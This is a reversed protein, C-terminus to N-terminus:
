LLIEKVSNLQPEGGIPIYILVKAFYEKGTPQVAKCIVCINRGGVSQTATALPQYEANTLGGKISNYINLVEDSITSHVEWGGPIM